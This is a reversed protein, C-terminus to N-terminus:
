FFVKLYLNKFFQILKFNEFFCSRVITKPITLTSWSWETEYGTDDKAKVEISYTGSKQWTHKITCKEGSEYPGLWDTVEGDTFDWKLWIQDNQPDITSTSFEYEKGVIGSSIGEPKKPPYLYPDQVYVTLPESWESDYWVGNKYAMGMGRLHYEGPEEWYYYIDIEEGSGYPGTTGSIEGNGFDWRFYLARGEPDICTSKYHHWIYARPHTEGYPKSPPNPNKQDTNLDTKKNISFNSTITAQSLTTGLFVLILFICILKLVVKKRM